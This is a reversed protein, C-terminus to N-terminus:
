AAYPRLQETVIECTSNSLPTAGAKITLRLNGIDALKYWDEPDDQLGFPICLAGFPASGEILAKFNCAISSRLDINGGYMYDSKLYAGANGMAMGALEIEYTSMVFFDKTSNATAGEISERIRPFQAGFYKLLDSTKDNVPIRKDNDESLKVENFQEWPQKDAAHSMIILKRMNYDVPLDIYENAGADLTYSVHEKKMLFGVPSVSKEDFIDAIIDMTGASCAAGGSARNHTIKIQPNKFKTPDFAYLPDYLFRGFMIEFTTVCMVGNLYNNIVFPTKKQSFFQDALLEKGSLGFLVDSGDVIEIKSIIASPHATPVVNSNTGKIQICLRSIVDKLTVDLSRTGSDAISEHDLMIAQRYNM